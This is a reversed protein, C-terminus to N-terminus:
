QVADRLAVGSIADTCAQFTIAHRMGQDIRTLPRSDPQCIALSRPSQANSIRMSHVLPQRSDRHIAQAHRGRGIILAGEAFVSLVVMDEIWM